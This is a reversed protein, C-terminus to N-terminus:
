EGDETAVELALVCLATKGEVGAEHVIAKLKLRCDSIKAQSEAPMQSVLGQIMLMQMQENTM